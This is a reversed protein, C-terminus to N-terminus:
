SYVYILGLRTVVTILQGGSDSTGEAVAGADGSTGNSTDENVLEESEEVEESDERVEAARVKRAVSGEQGFVRLIANRACQISDTELCDTLGSGRVTRAAADSWVSVVMLLVVSRPIFM